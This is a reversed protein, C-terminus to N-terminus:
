PRTQNRQNRRNRQVELGQFRLTDSEPTYNWQVDGVGFQRLRNRFEYSSIMPRSARSYCRRRADECQQWKEKKKRDAASERCKRDFDDCMDRYYARGEPSVARM